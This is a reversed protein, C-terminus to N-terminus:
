WPRQACHAQAAGGNRVGRIPCIRRLRQVLHHRRFEAQQRHLGFPLALGYSNSSAYQCLLRVHTPSLPGARCLLRNSDSRSLVRSSDLRTSKPSLSKCLNLIRLPELITVDTPGDIRVRDGACSLVDTLTSLLHDIRLAKAAAALLRARNRQGSSLVREFSGMAKMADNMSAGTKLQAVLKQHFTAAAAGAGAKAVLFYQKSPRTRGPLGVPVDASYIGIACSTGDFGAKWPKIDKGDPADLSPGVVLEADANESAIADRLNTLSSKFRCTDSLLKTVADDPIEMAAVGSAFAGCGFISPNVNPADGNIEFVVGKAGSPTIHVMNPLAIAEDSPRLM